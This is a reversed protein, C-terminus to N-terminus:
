PRLPEAESKEHLLIPTEWVMGARGGKKAELLVVHPAAGRKTFVLQARKVEFRNEGLAHCAQALLSAPYVMFFNGGNKVLRKACAAVDYVTCEEQHTSMRRQTDASKTGGAFYPPNSVAADFNEFGPKAILTRLDACLVRISAQQANLAVSRRAMDCMSENLEVADFCAGTKGNILISLIGTGAGLDLFREGSKARVFNALLVADTGYTFGRTDRIIRLNQFGLDEVVEHEFLEM